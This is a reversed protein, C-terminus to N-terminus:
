PKWVEWVEPRNAQNGYSLYESEGKPDNPEISYYRESNWSFAYVTNRNEARGRYVWAIRGVTRYYEQSYASEEDGATYWHSRSGNPPKPVREFLPQGGPPADNGVYVLGLENRAYGEGELQRIRGEDATVQNRYGTANFNWLTAYPRSDIGINVQQGEAVREGPAPNQDVVSNPPVAESSRGGQVEACGLGAQQLRQCAAQARLNRVDPVEIGESDYFSITVPSGPAANARAEPNQGFVKNPPSGFGAPARNCELGAGRLTQCANDPNKGVVDPVPVQSPPVLETYFIVVTSGGEVRAGAPPDSREVMPVAIRAGPPAEQTTVNEECVLGASEISGCAPGPQQGIVDPVTTQAPVRRIFFITVTTGAEVRTGARPNSRDVGTELYRDGPPVEEVRPRRECVLRAAEIAQCAPNPREGVVDPVTVEEVPGSTPPVETPPVETPPVTSPPDPDTPPDPVSTPPLEEDPPGTDPPGTDPPVDPPPPAVPPPMDSPDDPPDVQEDVVEPDLPVDPPQSRESQDALADRDGEEIPETRGDPEVVGSARASASNYWVEGDKEFLEFDDNAAAELDTQERVEGTERDVVIVRGDTSAVYVSGDVVVPARDGEADLEVEVRDDEDRIGHLIQTDPAWVWLRDSGFAPEQLVGGDPLSLEDGPRGSRRDVFALTGDTRDAVVPRGGALTIDLEHGPETFRVDTEIECDDVRRVVGDRRTVLWLIGDDDLAAEARGPIGFSRRTEMTRADLCRVAGDSVLYAAGARVYPRASGDIEQTPRAQLNVPDLGYAERRTRNVVLADSGDQSIAVEDDPDVMDGLLWDVRSVSSSAHVLDAGHRLWANSAALSVPVSTYGSGLSVAIGAAVLAAVVFLRRVLMPKRSRLM